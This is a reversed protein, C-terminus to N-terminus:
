DRIVLLPIAFVGERRWLALMLMLVLVLVLMLAPLAIHPPTPPPVQPDQPHRQKPFRKMCRPARRTSYKPVKHIGRSSSDNHAYGLNIRQPPPNTKHLRPCNDLRDEICPSSIDQIRSWRLDGPTSLSILLRNSKVTFLSWIILEIRTWVM